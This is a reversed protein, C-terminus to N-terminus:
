ESIEKKKAAMEQFRGHYTKLSEVQKEIQNLVEQTRDIHDDALIMDEQWMKQFAINAQQLCESAGNLGGFASARLDTTM